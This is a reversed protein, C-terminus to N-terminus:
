YYNALHLDWANYSYRVPYQLQHNSKNVIESPHLNLMYESNVVVINISEKKQEDYLVKIELDTHLDTLALTYFMGLAITLDCYRNESILMWPDPWSEPHGPDLYNNVFPATGWLKAVKVCAEPLPERGLKKRFDYWDKLRQNTDLDWM